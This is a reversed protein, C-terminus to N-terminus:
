TGLRRSRLLLVIEEPTMTGKAARSTTPGYTWVREPTATNPLFGRRHVLTPM